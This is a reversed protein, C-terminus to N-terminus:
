SGQAPVEVLRSTGLRGHRIEPLNRRASRRGQPEPVPLGLGDRPPTHGDPIAALDEVPGPATGPM